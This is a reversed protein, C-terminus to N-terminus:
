PGFIYSVERRAAFPLRENGAPLCWFNAVVGRGLYVAQSFIIVGERRCM